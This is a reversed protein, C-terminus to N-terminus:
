DPRENKLAAYLMQFKAPRPSKPITPHRAAPASGSRSRGWGQGRLAPATGKARLLPASFLVLGNEIQRNVPLYTRDSDRSSLATRKLPLQAM